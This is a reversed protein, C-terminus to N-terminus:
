SAASVKTVDLTGAQAQELTQIDNGLQESPFLEIKLKGGSLEDVRKAMQEMGIQVPHTAAVNNAARLM